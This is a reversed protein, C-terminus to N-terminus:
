PASRAIPSDAGRGDRKSQIEVKAVRRDDGAVVTFSLGGWAIVSGTPPVRGTTAVLFGSLTEYKGTDPFSVRLVEELDRIPVSGEALITGEAVVKIPREEADNEDQIEGVIEEVVDELCVLGSTGGFEDVVIAIHTKRKQFEKLLRSIKMIEPVFFPPRQYKEIHFHARDLGARLDEIISKVYLVGVVNDISGQYVPIRSHQSEVVLDLLEDASSGRDVALMQTRPVMVEKVVIDAFELVSNLLEEKVKDLVGERTGLDILYEIEESTISPAPPGAPGRALLRNVAVTGYFLPYSLPFLLWYILTIIPLLALAFREAHRKAFTKPTVEGVFLIVLTMVGTTVAVAHTLFRAAIATALASAGINALTNGLLLTALVREPHDLWLRLFGAGSRGSELIQRAKTEGLATLSTESASFFASLGLCCAITVYEWSPVDLLPM